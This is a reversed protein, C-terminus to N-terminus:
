PKAEPDLIWAGLNAEAAVELWREDRTLLRRHGQLYVFCELDGWDNPKPTYKTACNLVYRAYARVYPQLLGGVRVLEEETPEGPRSDLNLAARARTGLATYREIEPLKAADAFPQALEKKTYKAGALSKRAALYGPFFNDVLVEIDSSFASWHTRAGAAIDPQVTRIVGEIHDPVGDRVQKCSTAM